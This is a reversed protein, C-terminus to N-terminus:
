SHEVIRCQQEAEDMKPLVSLGVTFISGIKRERKLRAPYRKIGQLFCMFKCKRFDQTEIVRMIM